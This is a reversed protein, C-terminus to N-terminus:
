KWLNIITAMLLFIALSLSSDILVTKPAKQEWLIRGMESTMSFGFWLLVAMRLAEELSIATFRLVYALVIASLLSLFFQNVLRLAMGEKKSQAIQEDTLNLSKQWLGGFLFPSYWLGGLMFSAVAAALIAYYNVAHLIM